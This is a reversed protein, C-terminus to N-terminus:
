EEEKELQELQMLYGVLGTIKFDPPHLGLEAKHLIGFARVLELLPADKIKEPTISELIQAQLSTLQLTQVSRYDLLLGEKQYLDAMRRTLTVHSIGLEKAMEKHNLGNSALEHLRVPDLEKKKRGM